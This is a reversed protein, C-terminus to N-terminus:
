NEIYFRNKHTNNSINKNIYEIKMSLEKINQLDMDIQKLSLTNNDKEFVYDSGEFYDSEIEDEELFDHTSRPSSYFVGDKIKRAPNGAYITNSEVTKNSIVSNGGIIAGSGICTNKLILCGQGIWAHDGILISKSYNIRRNTKTSYIIHPDATRLYSDFSM